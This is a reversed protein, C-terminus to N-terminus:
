MATGGGSFRRYASLPPAQVVGPVGRAQDAVGAVSLALRFKHRWLNQFALYTM